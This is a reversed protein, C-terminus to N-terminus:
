QRSAILIFGGFALSAVGILGIYRTARPLTQQAFRQHWQWPLLLLVATSILLLWGFARFVEPLLMQHAGIVFAAGVVFRLFLEVFHLTQSGVFGFLFRRARDPMLLAAVGLGCLYLGALVIVVQAALELERVSNL